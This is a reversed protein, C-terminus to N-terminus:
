GEYVWVKGNYVFGEAKAVERLWAQSGDNVFEVRELDLDFAESLLEQVLPAAVARKPYERHVAIGCIRALQHDGWLM